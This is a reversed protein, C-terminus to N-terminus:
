LFSLVFILRSIVGEDMLLTHHSLSFTAYCSWTTKYKDLASHFSTRQVGATVPEDCLCCWTSRMLPQENMGGALHLWSDHEYFSHVMLPQKLYAHPLDFRLDFKWTIHGPVTHGGRERQHFVNQVRMIWSCVRIM